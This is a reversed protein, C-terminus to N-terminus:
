GTPSKLGALVNRADDSWPYIKASSLAAELDSRASESQGAQLKAMGLHYRIEKADPAREAARELIPLADAYEGRKFHVWGNTDLLGGVTSSAFGATLDRARDLSRRDKKYTVLLMALNNAAIELGPNRKYLAEYQGIADDVRGQREYLQALETVLQPVAPAVKVGGEYAAIAGMPDNAAMKALALNRYSPWWTPALTTARTLADTARPLDKTALYVEGLLNALAADKPYADVASQVLTIAQSGAGRSLELKALAALPEPVQPQLDHARQLEKQADDLRNQGQAALGALYPGVASKPRLTELDGAATRAAGFDSKALYAHILGERADANSPDQRVTEELLAIAQEPRQTQALLRALEIRLASDQPAVDMAARLAQEALAPEGNALHARAIMRQVPVSRPQDRLVARLDAIAAAPDSRQLEIEGRVLLADTDRPSKQLVQEILKRADDNRGAVVDIAAIRDRALLGKPGTGDRSIIESYVDLAAKSEGARQLMEALGFRLEFDGPDKAVFARLVKEGEAPTRQTAIFTALSLKADDSTPLTKVADELVRQADDVRHSRAYFLALMKRYRLEKPQLRVLSELQEDAKAPDDSSLYLNALVERLQTSQPLRVVADSLLATAHPLDGAQQYVGARLAIADESAPDLQLARDADALAGSENKTQLRAIARVTLLRVENPHKVLAPEITDLARQPVGGFAFLRGLSARADIDDPAADVVSQYLGVAERVQGLKEAAHAAMLRAATDKPAIQMANRFEISAHTFDGQAFYSRGREMHSALRSAAGGCGVVILTGVLVAMSYGMRRGFAAKVVSM